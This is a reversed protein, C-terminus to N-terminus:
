IFFLYKYFYSSLIWLYFNWLYHFNFLIHNTKLLTSFFSDGKNKILQQLMYVM